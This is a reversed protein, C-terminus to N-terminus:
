KLNEKLEREIRAFVIDDSGGVPFKPRLKNTIFNLLYDADVQNLIINIKMDEEDEKLYERAIM